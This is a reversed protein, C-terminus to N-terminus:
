GHIYGLIKEVVQDISLGTSDIYIADDAQKLAGVDRTMDSQDRQEINKKLTESDIAQGKEQLETGRRNSREELNADLYFKYTAKPFVVTTVDRGEAVISKQAAINRQWQVMIDRVDPKGAVTSTNSTVEVDRIAESVDEGDLCIKLGESTSELDVQTQQALEVLALADDLAINQRMAKLTLSRYLAGTDLFSFNLIKALHKAVTSKGAGAPGDIAIVITDKSM